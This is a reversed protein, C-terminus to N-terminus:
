DLAIWRPVPTCFLVDGGYSDMHSAVIGADVGVDRALRLKSLGDELADARDDMLGTGLDLLRHFPAHRAEYVGAADKAGRRRELLVGCEPLMRQHHTLLSRLAAWGTVAWLSTQHMKM